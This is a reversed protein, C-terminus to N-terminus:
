GRAGQRHRVDVGREGAVIRGIRAAVEGAGALLSLARGADAEAVVLVFGIGLNFVRLMEEAPVDGAREILGFVPPEPWASADLVARCGAPLVRPLNGVLGGGTIHAMAKVPLAELLHRIARVYIRTPTLLEDVLPRALPALVADLAYGARELLARRALSFGNSHLGSSPLGLVVDGPVVTRGDVVREREVVGVLFGALDYEGAGYCDPMEATEGGLLACGAECCGEAVGALIEEAVSPELQGTALYDLFFLPEAGCVLVDNASMAVLDIGITRHRGAQQAIKLKTGVGDTSAVLVPSRYRSPLAFLGAFSGIDALVEPRRTKAALGKIRQVFAEAGALDVGAQKYTLPGM